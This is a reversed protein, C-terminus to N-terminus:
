CFSLTSLYHLSGPRHVCSTKLVVSPYLLCVTADNALKILLPKMDESILQIDKIKALIAFVGAISKSSRSRTHWNDPM